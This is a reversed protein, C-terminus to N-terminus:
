YEEGVDTLGYLQSRFETESPDRLQKKLTPPDQLNQRRHYQNCLGEQVKINRWLNKHKLRGRKGGNIGSKLM